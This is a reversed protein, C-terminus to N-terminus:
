SENQSECTQEDKYALNLTHRNKPAEDMLGPWHLVFVSHNTKYFPLKKEAKTVHWRIKNLILVNICQM